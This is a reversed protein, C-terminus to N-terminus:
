RSLIFLLYDLFTNRSKNVIMYEVPGATQQLDVKDVMICVTTEAMDAAM